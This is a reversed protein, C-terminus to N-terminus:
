AATRTAIGWLEGDPTLAHGDGAIFGATQLLARLAGEAPYGMSLAAGSARAARQAAILLQVISLDVEVLGSCDVIVRGGSSLAQQLQDAIRTVDRLGVSGTLAVIQAASSM